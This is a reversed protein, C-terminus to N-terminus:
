KDETDKLEFKLNPFGLSGDEPACFTTFGEEEVRLVDLVFRLSTGALMNNCDLQVEEENVQLPWMRRLGATRGMLTSMRTNQSRLASLRRHWGAGGLFGVELVIAGAGNALEVLMGRQLGGQKEYRM